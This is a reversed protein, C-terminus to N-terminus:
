NIKEKIRDILQNFTPDDPRFQNLREAWRLADKLAPDGKSLVIDFTNSAEYLYVCIEATYIKQALAKDETTLEASDIEGSFYPQMVATYRRKDEAQISDTSINMTSAVYAYGAKKAVEADKAKQAYRLQFLCLHGQQKPSMQQKLLEMQKFIIPIDQLRDEELALRFADASLNFLVPALKQQRAQDVSPYAKLLLDFATGKAHNLNNSIFDINAPKERETSAQANLYADFELSNDLGLDKKQLIYTKLFNLDRNGAQFQKDLNALVQERNKAVAEHAQAIFTEPEQYDLVRALLVGEPSLYLYTPYAGVEYQKALKIGEGKEADLKYNIFAKNYTAGVAPLPLVEKDMRKCPPCWDTYVDVFIPKNQEKALQLLAKWSGEFFQIGDAANSILPSLLLGIYLLTSALITKM